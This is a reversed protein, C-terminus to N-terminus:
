CLRGREELITAFEEGKTEMRDIGIIARPDAHLQRLVSVQATTTARWWPAWSADVRLGRLRVTRYVERQTAPPVMAWHPACFLHRPPCVANCNKLHCTHKM